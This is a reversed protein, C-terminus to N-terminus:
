KTEGFLDGTSESEDLAADVERELRMSDELAARDRTKFYSRQADRMRRVIDRFSEQNM